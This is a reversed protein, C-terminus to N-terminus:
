NIIIAILIVGQGRFVKSITNVPFLEVVDGYRTSKREPCGAMAGDQQSSVSVSFTNNAMNFLLAQTLTVEILDNMHNATLPSSVIRLHDCQPM